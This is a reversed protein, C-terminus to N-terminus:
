AGGNPAALRPQDSLRLDRRVEVTYGGKRSVGRTVTGTCGKIPKGETDLWGAQEFADRILRACTM